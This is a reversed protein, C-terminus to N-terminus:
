SGDRVRAAGANDILEGLLEQRKVFEVPTSQAGARWRGMTDRRRFGTM